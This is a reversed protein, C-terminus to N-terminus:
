KGDEATYKQLEAVTEEYQARVDLAKLKLDPFAEMAERHDQLSEMDRPALNHVLRMRRETRPLLAGNLKELQKKLSDARSLLTARKAALDRTQQEVRLEGATREARARGASAEPQWFFVFPLSVGIMVEKFRPTMPTGGMERYRLNLDPLWESRAERERWKLGELQLRQFELQPTAELQGPQPIASPPSGEAIISTSAPDRNLVLAGQIQWEKSEQQSLLIENELLDLDSEAKIIHIRLFSDSRAGATALRVHREIAAKKENLLVLKERSKWMNFYVLKAYALVDRESSLRMQEQALSAYRRAQLDDRIRTPFPISQSVELGNARGSSDSMQTLAAMPPPIAIGKARYASAETESRDIKLQLHERRVEAMFHDLNIREDAFAIPCVLFGLTTLVSIM